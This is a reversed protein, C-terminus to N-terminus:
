RWCVEHDNREDQTTQEQEQAVVAATLRYAADARKSSTGFSRLEWVTGVGRPPPTPITKAKVSSVSQSAHRPSMAGRKAIARSPLPSATASIPKM